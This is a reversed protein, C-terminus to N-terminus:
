PPTRHRQGDAVVVRLRAHGQETVGERVQKAGRDFGIRVAHRERVPAPRPGPLFPPVGGLCQSSAQLFAPHGRALHHDGLNGVAVIEQDQVRGHSGNASHEQWDMAVVARALQHRQHPAALRANHHHGGLLHRRFQRLRGGHNQYRARVPPFRM